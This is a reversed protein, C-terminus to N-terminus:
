APRTRRRALQAIRGGLAAALRTGAGRVLSEPWLRARWRVRRPVATWLGRRATRLAAALEPGVTAGAPGYSAAEEALALRRVADVASRDDPQRRHGIRHAGGRGPGEPGESAATMAAALRRATQRPTATPPPPLGLDLATASLEDWLAGASGDALRRRRQAARLMAPVAALLALLLVGGAGLLTPRVWALPDDAPLNLPRFQDDRDLRATPGSPRSTSAVPAGAQDPLNADGIRPAWPLDVERNASLPTPDFPVWGLDAFYVEVWAHADDSTILRTGDRQTTGPTYGLVVRAPVGAARVMVAMAGAYQECYGRKLKLFNVLNDESSGPATVLSYIFGNSRDTLYDLISRVREYPTDKGATLERVQNMVIPNLPPLRTFRDQIQNGDLLQEADGLLEPSPRPETATVRWTLDATTVDRGFITATGPDFRWDRNDTDQVRVSLPSGPVPLFRDNHGVAHITATVRRTQERLPLPALRDDEAISNEGDLNSLTWGNEADYQDLAVARLYGLDAVNADVSLLPIPDPRTLQGQLAAVPDLSTGTASGPGSGTGFGSSLVGEPLTPVLSGVVLGAVLALLGTRVAGVAGAGLLRRRDSRTRRALRRNQDAWLLLALGAAPAALATLGIGGRITSVPVCYLVLLGLGAVAPQRGAVAVLDVLVAVLSVLVATLAMLGTLTLAPTAQERLEASGDLLVDSLDGFSTPTPLFGLWADHPAYLATLLCLVLALQGFPVLGVAAAALRPPVPRDPLFRVWLAPTGARLLLGGALVTLVVALVPPFWDFGAFVPVLSLSGLLTAVAAAVAVRVDSVLRM